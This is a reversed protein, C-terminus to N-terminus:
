SIVISSTPCLEHAKRVLEITAEDEVVKTAVESVGKAESYRFVAPATEVCTRSASCRRRDLHVAIPELTSDDESM